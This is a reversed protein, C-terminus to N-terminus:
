VFLLVLTWIRQVYKFTPNTIGTESLPSYFFRILLNALATTTRHKVSIGQRLSYHPLAISHFEHGWGLAEMCIAYVYVQMYMHGCLAFKKQTHVHVCLSCKCVCSFLFFFWLNPTMSNIFIQLFWQVEYLVQPLLTMRLKKCRLPQKLEMVVTSCLYQQCYWLGAKVWLLLFGFKRVLPWLNLLLYSVVLDYLKHHKQYKFSDSWTVILSLLWRSTSYQRVSKCM